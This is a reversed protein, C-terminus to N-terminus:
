TFGPSWTMVQRDTNQPVQECHTVPWGLRHSSVLTLISGPTAWRMCQFPLSCMFWNRLREENPSCISTCSFEITFISSSIGSSTAASTPQPTIVPTPATNLAALTSGPM